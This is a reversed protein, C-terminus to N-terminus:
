RRLHLFGTLKGSSINIVYFYTGEVLDNEGGVNSRGEFRHTSLANNYGEIDYVKQGWRNFIHVSNGPYTEINEIKFYDNRGNNNPSVGNYIILDLDVPRVTNEFWSIRDFRFTILVDMDGDGDIDAPNASWPFYAGDVDPDFPGRDYVIQETFNQNGVNEFWAIKDKLESIHLVDVDGDGDMDVGYVDGPQSVMSGLEHETFIQSGNNEYWSLRNLLSASLIDVDGDSDVDVAFTSVYRRQVNDVIHEIFNQAGDNELWVLKDHGPGFSQIESAVVLDMDGDGEMDIPYFDTPDINFGSIERETFNEVGDNEYWALKAPTSVPSYGGAVIDMDGDGDMDIAFVDSAVNATFSIVHGTFNEAGDNEYWSVTNNQSASLLDMNGDSNVDALFVGAAGVTDTVIHETFNQSGDNEYWALTGSGAWTTFLDIDGDNDIDGSVLDFPASLVDSLVHEHFYAPTEPGPMTEVTFQIGVPSNLAQGLTNSINTTLTIRIIEGNKFDDDPNFTIITTGAGTFVGPIVGTQSGTVIINSANVTIPEVDQDFTFQIDSNTPVSNSNPTPSVGVFNLQADATITVLTFFFLKFTKSLSLGKMKYLASINSAWEM